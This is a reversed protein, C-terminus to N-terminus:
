KPYNFFGKGSKRGLSGSDVMKKLLMPPSFREDKFDKYLGECIALETDLGILDSLGLPGMPHNLGLRIAKDLDERTVQGSELLRISELLLAALVRNVIFGPTDPATVVTKGLKEAFARAAALTEDSAYSTKVLEVLKMMSVPNFFHIGVVKDQRSTAAAIDTVSLCSTNTALITSAPCIGDLEQFIKKKLDLNENVAEIVLGCDKLDALGTGGSIRSIAANKDAETIRGRKFDGDLSKDIAALGIKLLESNAEAIHVFFGSRASAEAIGSGMIGCGVVGVRNIEM